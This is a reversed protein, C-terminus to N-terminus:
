GWATEDGEELEPMKNYTIDVKSRDLRDRTEECATVLSSNDLIVEEDPRDYTFSLIASAVIERLYAGTMGKTLKALEDEDIDAALKMNSLMNTLMQKRQEENPLEINIFADIRGPRNRLAEDLHQPYNTTMVTIVKTNPEIGELIELLSGLGDDKVARRDMGGITDIDEILVLTPSLKRALKYVHKMTFGDSMRARTVYITTMDVMNLLIKCYLTKGTGPVGAMMIGRSTRHGAQELAPTARIFGPINRELTSKVRADLVIDDM